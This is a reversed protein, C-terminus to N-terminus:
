LIGRAALEERLAPAGRFRIALLGEERAAACNAARDDVLLAQGPGVGLRALADRYARPDPKRLGTECSVLSWRLYRSLRLRAEVERYWVPYNSFAHLALGQGRLEALLEEMGPVFRYASALARRLRPVDCPRGDRFYRQGLEAEGLEGREFATWAGPDQLRELTDVALGFFGAVVEPYPDVVVTDMVDLLLVTM